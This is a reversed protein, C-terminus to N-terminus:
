ASVLQQMSWISHMEYRGHERRIKGAAAWNRLTRDTLNFYGAAAEGDAWIEGGDTSVALAILHNLDWINGCSRCPATMSRTDDGVQIRTGCQQGTEDDRNPCAITMSKQPEMRAAARAQKHCQRLEIAFDAIAPHRECAAPLWTQLFSVVGVLTQEKPKGANRAHSAPGYPTLHFTERWDKEWSELVPLVDNGALFDLANVRVGISIENGRGTGGGTQGPRLEGATIAVYDVIDHLQRALKLQCHECVPRNDLRDCIQCNSM